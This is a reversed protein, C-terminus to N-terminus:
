GVLHHKGVVYVSTAKPGKDGPEEVFRLATGVTIDDFSGDVVSNRHFYIERGDPTRLKGYDHEPDLLFVEGHPPVEHTKVKGRRVRAFDELQRRMSDFADRIAVYPDEHAKHQDPARQVVIEKGPVSADIRINFLNGQRHHLHPVDVVVDCRILEDCFKELNAARERIISEAAPSPEMHRWTISLPIQM